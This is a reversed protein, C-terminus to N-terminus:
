KRRSEKFQQEDRPWFKYDCIDYPNTLKRYWNGKNSAKTKKLKRRVIKNAMTKAGKNYDTYIPFKFSRSM